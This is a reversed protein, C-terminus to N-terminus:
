LLSRFPINQEASFCDDFGRPYHYSKKEKDTKEESINLSTFVYEAGAKEAKKIIGATKEIETGLYVSFGTKIM